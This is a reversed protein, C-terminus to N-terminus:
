AQKSPDPDPIELLYGMGGSGQETFKTGAMLVSVPTRDKKLLVQEHPQEHICYRVTIAPEALDSGDPLQILGPISIVGASLDERSFGFMELFTNNAETITGSQDWFMIGCLGSEFFRRLRAENENVAIEAMKRENIDFSTGEIILNGAEDRVIRASLSGWIISGDKRFFRAELNDFSGRTKLLRFSEDKDQKEVFVQTRLDTVSSILDAESEYGLYRVAQPNASLFRGEPTCTFLGTKANQYIDRYKKESRRLESEREREAALNHITGIVAPKGQYSSSGVSILIPVRTTGDKHLLSFEYSEILPKGALRDRQRGMVLDRDEPAILDPVQMGSVEAATYGAMSALAENCYLMIGDQSLFAGDQVHGVLVRYQEESAELAQEARSKQVVLRIKHALEALLSAPDGGKQIYFDAGENLARIVVEERGRGTFLIFPINSGSERVKKLFEIGDMRPMQYDSIVADYQGSQLHELGESASTLTEVSFEGNRELVQKWFLLLDKEDDVYLIHIM